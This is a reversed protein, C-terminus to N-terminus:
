VVSKRDTEDSRQASFQSYLVVAADLRADNDDVNSIVNGEDSEEHMILNGQPAGLVPMSIGPMEQCLSPAMTVKTDDNVPLKIENSLISQPLVKSSEPIISLVPSPSVDKTHVNYTLLNCHQMSSMTPFPSNLVPTAISPVYELVTNKGVVFNNVSSAKRHSREIKTLSHPESDHRRLKSIPREQLKPCHDYFFMSTAGDNDQIPSCDNNSLPISPGPVGALLTPQVLPVGQAVHSHEIKVGQPVVMGAKPEPAYSYRFAAHKKHPPAGREVSTMSEDSVDTGTSMEEEDEIKKALPVKSKEGKDLTNNPTNEDGVVYKNKARKPRKMRLLRNRQSNTMAEKETSDCSHPNKKPTKPQLARKLFRNKKSSTWKSLLSKSENNNDEMSLQAMKDNANSIVDDTTLDRPEDESEDDVLAQLAELIADFTPRERPDEHWCREFLQVVCSNIEKPFSSKMEDKSCNPEKYTLLSWAIISFSYVDSFKTLEKDPALYSNQEEESHDLQKKLFQSIGYDSIKVDYKSRKEDCVLLVNEPKLNGHIIDLSHLLEMGKAISQIVKWCNQPSQDQKEIFETLNMGNVYESILCNIEGGTGRIRTPQLVSTGLFNVFNMNSDDKSIISQFNTLKHVVQNWLDTSIVPTAVKITVSKDNWTGKYTAGYTGRKLREEFNLEQLPILIDGDENTESAKSRHGRSQILSGRQHSTASSVSLSSITNATFSTSATSATVVSHDDAFKNTSRSGSSRHKRGSSHPKGSSSQSSRDLYVIHDKNVNVWQNLLKQVGFALRPM